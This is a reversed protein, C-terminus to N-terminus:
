KEKELVGSVINIDYLLLLNLFCVLITKTEEM